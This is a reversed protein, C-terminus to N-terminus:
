FSYRIVISWLEASILAVVVNEQLIAELLADEVKNFYDPYKTAVFLLVSQCNKLHMEYMADDNRVANASHINQIEILDSLSYKRNLSGQKENLLLLRRFINGTDDSLHEHIQESDSTFIKEIATSWISVFLQTIDCEYDKMAQLLVNNSFQCTM